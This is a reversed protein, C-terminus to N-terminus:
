SLNVVSGERTHSRAFNEVPAVVVSCVDNRDRVARLPWRVPVRSRAAVAAAPSDARTENGNPSPSPTSDRVSFAADPPSPADGM